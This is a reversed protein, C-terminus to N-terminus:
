RFQAPECGSVGAWRVTGGRAPPREAAEARRKWEALMTRLADRYDDGIIQEFSTMKAAVYIGTRPVRAVPGEPNATIPIRDFGEQRRAFKAETVASSAFLIARGGQEVGVLVFQVRDEEPLPEPEERELQLGRAYELAAQRVEQPLAWFEALQAEGPELPELDGAM